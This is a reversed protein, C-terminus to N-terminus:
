TENEDVSELAEACANKIVKHTENAKINV